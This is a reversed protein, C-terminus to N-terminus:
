LEEIFQLPIKSSPAPPHTYTSYCILIIYPCNITNNLWIYNFKISCSTYIWKKPSQTHNCGLYILTM